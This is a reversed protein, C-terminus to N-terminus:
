HALTDDTRHWSPYLLIGDAEVKDLFGAHVFLCVYSCMCVYVFKHYDFVIIKSEIIRIFLNNSDRISCSPLQIQQNM